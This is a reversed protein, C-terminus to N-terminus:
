HIIRKGIRDVVIVANPDDLTQLLNHIMYGMIDVAQRVEEMEILNCESMYVEIHSKALLKAIEEDVM